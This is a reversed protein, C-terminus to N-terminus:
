IQELVVGRHGPLEPHDSHLQQGHLVLECLHPHQDLPLALRQRMRREFPLAGPRGSGFQVPPHTNQLQRNLLQTQTARRAFRRLTREAQRNAQQLLQHRM